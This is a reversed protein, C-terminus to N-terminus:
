SLPKEFQWHMELHTYVCMCAHLFLAKIDPAIDLTGLM